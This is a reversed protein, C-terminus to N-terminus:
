AESETPTFTIKLNGKGIKVRHGQYIKAPTGRFQAAYYLTDVGKVTNYIGIASVGEQWGGEELPILSDKTTGDDADAYFATNLNTVVGDKISVYLIKTGPDTPAQAIPTISMRSYAPNVSQDKSIETFSKGDSGMNGLAMKAGTLMATLIADKGKNTIAM